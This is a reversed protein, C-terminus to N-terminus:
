DLFRLRESVAALRKLMRKRFEDAGEFLIFNKIAAMAKKTTPM